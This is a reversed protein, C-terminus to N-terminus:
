GRGKAEAERKRREMRAKVAAVREAVQRPDNANWTRQDDKGLLAAHLDSDVVKGGKLRFFELGRRTQEVM